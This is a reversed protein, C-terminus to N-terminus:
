SLDLYAIDYNRLHLPLWELITLEATAAAAIVASKCDAASVGAEILVEGTRPVGAPIPKATDFAYLCDSKRYVDHSAM